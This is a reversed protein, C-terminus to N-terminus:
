IMPPLTDRILSATLMPTEQSDVEYDAWAHYLPMRAAPLAQIGDRATIPRGHTALQSLDRDIMVIVSNQHLLPYNEPRTVVGGGCSIVLGTENGLEILTNSELNRFYAEGYRAFIDAITM